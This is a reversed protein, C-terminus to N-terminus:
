NRETRLYNHEPALFDLVAEAAEEHYFPTGTNLDSGRTVVGNSDEHSYHWAGAYARGITGGGVKSIRVTSGDYTMAVYEWDSPDTPYDQAYM